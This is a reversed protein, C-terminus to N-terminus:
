IRVSLAARPASMSDRGGASIASRRIKGRAAAALPHRRSREDAGARSQFRRSEIRRTQPLVNRAPDLYPAFIQHAVEDSIKGDEKILTTIEDRNKPDNMFAYASAMARVFRVLTDKNQAGWARRAMDVNFILDSGAEYTFALRPFGLKIAALDEPQGM